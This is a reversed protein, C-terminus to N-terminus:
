DQVLLDSRNGIKVRYIDPRMRDKNIHHVYRRRSEAVKEIKDLNNHFRDKMEASLRREPYLPDYMEKLEADDRTEYTKVHGVIPVPESRKSPVKERHRKKVQGEHIFDVTPLMTEGPTREGSDRSTGLNDVRGKMVSGVRKHVSRWAPSSTTMSWVLTLLYSVLLLLLGNFFARNIWSGTPSILAGVACIGFLILFILSVAEGVEMFCSTKRVSSKLIITRKVVNNKLHIVCIINWGATLFTYM